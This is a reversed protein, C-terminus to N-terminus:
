GHTGFIGHMAALKTPACHSPGEQRLLLVHPALKIGGDSLMGPVTGPCSVHIPCSAALNLMCEDFEADSWNHLSLM